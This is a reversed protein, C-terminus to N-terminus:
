PRPAREVLELELEAHWWQARPNADWTIAVLGRSDRQRVTGLCGYRVVRDGPELHARPEPEASM